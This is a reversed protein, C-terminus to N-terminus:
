AAVTERHKEEHLQQQVDILEKERIELLHLLIEIEDQISVIEYHLQSGRSQLNTEFM